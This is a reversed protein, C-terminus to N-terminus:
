AVPITVTHGTAGQPGQIREIVRIATRDDSFAWRREFLIEHGFFNVRSHEVFTEGDWDHSHSRAVGRKTGTTQQLGGGGIGGIWGGGRNFSNTPFEEAEPPPTFAFTSPAIPQDIVATNLALIQKTSRPDKGPFEITLEFESRLILRTEVQVWFLFPSGSVVVARRPSPEYRVSIVYCRTAINQFALMEERVLEADAVREAVRGFLFASENAQYPFEPNFSGVLHEGVTAPRKGYRNAGPLYTLLFQGDSVSTAGRKGQELRVKDPALYSFSVPREARSFGDDRSETITTAQATSAECGVTPKPSRNSCHVPM